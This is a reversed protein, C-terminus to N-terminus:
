AAGGKQAAIYDADVDRCIGADDQDVWVWAMVYAGPDDGISVIANDDIECVGDDGHRGKAAAIYAADVDKSFQNLSLDIKEQLKASLTKAPEITLLSLSAVLLAMEEAELNLYM